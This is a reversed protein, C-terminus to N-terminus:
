NVIKYAYCFPNTIPAANVTVIFGNGAVVSSVAVTSSAVVNTNCTTGAIPTTTEQTLFIESNATVATTSANGTTGGTPVVIHGASASGLAVPSSSSTTGNTATIYTASSTQGSVTLRTVTSTALTTTASFTNAGSFTNGGSFTNAASSTIVGSGNISFQDSTGANIGNVFHTAITSVLSDGLKAGNHFVLFGFGFGLLLLAVSSVIKNNM